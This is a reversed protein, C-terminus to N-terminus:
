NRHAVGVLDRVLDGVRYQVAQEFMVRGCAGRDFGHDGGSQDDDGAFHGNVVICGLPCEFVGFFGNALSDAFDAIYVGINAKVVSTAGDEAREMALRAIDALAHGSSFAEMCFLAGAVLSQHEAEGAVFGFGQHWEGNVKGM